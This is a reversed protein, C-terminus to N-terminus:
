ASLADAGLATKIGGEVAGVKDGRAIAQVTMVADAGTAMGGAARGGIALGKSMMEGAATTSKGLIAM